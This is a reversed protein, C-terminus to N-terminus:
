ECVIIYRGVKETIKRHDSSYGEVWLVRVISIYRRRMETFTRARYM